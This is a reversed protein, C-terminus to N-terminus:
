KGGTRLDRGTKVAGKKADTTQRPAKVIQTGGNKIKGAYASKGSM